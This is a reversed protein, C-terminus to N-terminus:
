KRKSDLTGYMQHVVQDFALLKRELSHFCVTGRGFAEAELLSTCSHRVYGQQTVLAITQSDSFCAYGDPKNFLSRGIHPSKPPVGLMHLVTPMLDIQSGVTEIRRRPLTAPAYIVLPIHFEDAYGQKRFSAITHDATFIFVTNNFWPSKRAEEMFQGLSWDSYCLTNLFGNESGASHPYKEFQKGASIFPVHTTGTFVCAAFPKKAEDLRGKLFMLTEYDWGYQPTGHPYKLLRPMNEMSYYQEFGTERAIVDLKFSKRKGGQVFITSYGQDKLAHGISTLGGANRDFGIIPGNTLVPVGTLVAQLGPISRQGAAYFNVFQLGEAAIRDFHPTAGFRKGGFSDVYSAGWSELLVIVVNLPKSNPQLMEPPLTNAAPADLGALRAAEDDTFYRHTLGDKEEAISHYLTFAGNLKLNSGAAHSSSYSDSIDLSDGSVSGRAGVLVLSSVVAARLWPHHTTTVPVKVLRQWLLFLAAAFALFAATHILYEGVMLTATADLDNSVMLVEDAVHRKVFDFYIVDAVLVFSFLVVGAYIVWAWAAHWRFQEAFKFPLNMMVLPLGLFTLTISLDFRLGGLFADLTEAISLDSFVSFYALFLMLRAFTFVLLVAALMLCSKRLRTM